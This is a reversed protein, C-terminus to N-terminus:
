ATVYLPIGGAGTITYSATYSITAPCGSVAPTNPISASTITVVGTSNNYSGTVSGAYTCSKLVNYPSVTSRLDLQFKVGLTLTPSGGNWDGTVDWLGPSSGNADLATVQAYPNGLSGITTTCYGNPATGSFTATSLYGAPGAGPATNGSTVATGSATATPCIINGIPSVGVANGSGDGANLVGTYLNTTPTCGATGGNVKCLHGGAAMAPSAVALTAASIAAAILSKKLM